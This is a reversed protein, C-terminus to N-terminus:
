RKSDAGSLHTWATNMIAFNLLNDAILPQPAAPSASFIIPFGALPSYYVLDIRPGGIRVARADPRLRWPQRCLPSEGDPHPGPPTFRKNRVWVHGDIFRNCRAVLAASIATPSTVILCGFASVRQFRKLRGKAGKVLQPSYLSYRRVTILSPKWLLTFQLASARQPSM